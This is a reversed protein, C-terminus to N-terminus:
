VREDALSKLVPKDAAAFEYQDYDEAAIWQMQQHEKLSITGKYDIVRYSLLSIDVDSYSHHTIMYLDGVTVRIGFEEFLERKLCDEPKEGPEVKGGPLEWKGARAKGECRRAILIRHTDMIIGATVKVRM